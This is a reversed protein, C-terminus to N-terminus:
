VIPLIARKLEQIEITAAKWVIELDINWYEHALVNRFDSIERWSIEPMSARFDHELHVTAEGIIELQRIVADQTKHDASFQEFTYGAIYTEILDIADKIHLLFPTPTKVM